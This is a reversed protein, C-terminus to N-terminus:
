SRTPATAPIESSRLGRAGLWVLLMALLTAWTAYPLIVAQVVRGLAGWNPALETLTALPKRRMYLVSTILVAALGHLWRARAPGARARAVAYTLPVAFIVTDYLRHYLVLVSFLGILAVSAARPLARTWTQVALAGGLLAVGAYMALKLVQRDHVGMRYLAHDFGLIWECQPGQYSVDNIRGPRALAEIYGLLNRAQGPLREPHGAIACLALTTLALAIWARLDRRRDLLILFPLVTNAKTTAPALLVGALAHRGSGQAWVALVILLAAFMALQGLELNATCADSLAFASALAALEAFTMPAVVGRDDQARLARYALPVLALAAAANFITWLWRGAPFPVTAFLAFLPYASFPPLAKHKWFNSPDLPDLGAWVERGVERFARFDVGWGHLHAILVLRVLSLALGLAAAGWLWGSRLRGRAVLAAVILLAVLAGPYYLGLMLFRDFKHM